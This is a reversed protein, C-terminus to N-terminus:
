KVVFLILVRKIRTKYIPTTQRKHLLCVKLFLYFGVVKFVVLLVVLSVVLTDLVPSEEGSAITVIITNANCRCHYSLFEFDYFHM